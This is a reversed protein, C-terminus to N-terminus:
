QTTPAATLRPETVQFDVLGRCWVPQRHVNWYRNNNGLLQDLYKRFRVIRHYAVLQVSDNDPFSDADPVPLQSLEIEALQQIRALVAEIDLAEFRTFNGIHDIYNAKTRHGVDSRPGADNELNLFPDAGFLVSGHVVKRYVRHERDDAGKRELKCYYGGNQIGLVVVRSCRYLVHRGLLHAYARMAYHSAYYGAVAAWVPSTNTLGASVVFSHVARHWMEVAASAFLRAEVADAGFTDVKRQIARLAAAHLWSGLAGAEPPQLRASKRQYGQFVIGIDEDSTIATM